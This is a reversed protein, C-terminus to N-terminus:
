GTGRGCRWVASRQYNESASELDRRVRQCGATQRRESGLFELYNGNDPIILARFVGSQLAIFDLEGRTTVNTKRTILAM